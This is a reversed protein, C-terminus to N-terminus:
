VHYLKSFPILETIGPSFESEKMGGVYYGYDKNAINHEIILDEISKLQARRESLILVRRDPEEKLINILISIIYETRPNFSCINNIMAAINEKGNWMKKVSSYEINPVYYKHINVDVDTYEKNKISNNHMLNLKKLM